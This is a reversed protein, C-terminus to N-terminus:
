RESRFLKVMYKGSNAMLDFGLSLCYSFLSDTWREPHTQFVLCPHPNSKLYDYLEDGSKFNLAVGSDVRDRLNAKHSSWNRGTDNIYAVDKYDIDLYAEGLIGYRDKLMRRNNPYKWMELNDFPKLPRGHMAITRVTAIDRFRKLNDEFNKLAMVIDGKTDSLCEYHYGIEHGLGAVARMVDPLFVRPKVRFYYTAKIGLKKELEAMCLANKPERDVDHRLICFSSPRPKSLFFEDFRIINQYSSKLAGLYRKYATHTFDRM